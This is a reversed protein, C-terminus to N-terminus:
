SKGEASANTEGIGDKAQLTDGTVGSEADLVGGQTSLTEGTRKRDIKHKWRQMLGVVFHAIFIQETTYLVVPISMRARVVGITWMAYLLPIGLATTKAPGCFIAAITEEAPFTYVPSITVHRRDASSDQKEADDGLSKRWPVLIRLSFWRKFLVPPRAMGFILAAFLIYLGVNLACTLAISGGGVSTFAGEYFCTSMTTWVLLIMAVMGIKGLYFKRLAFSTQTPFLARLIQGVCLPLYVALALYKFVKIYMETLGSSSGAGGVRAARIEAFVSTDPILVDTWAPTLFPGLVNGLLVQTVAASESGGAMRTMVVNSAITTPIASTLIMGALISPDIKSSQGNTSTVAGSAIIIQVIAQM